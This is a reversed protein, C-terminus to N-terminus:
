KPAGAPVAAATSDFSKVADVILVQLQKPDKADATFTTAGGTIGWTALSKNWSETQKAVEEASEGLAVDNVFRLRLGMKGANPAKPALLQPALQSNIALVAKYLGPGGVGVSTAVLGGVGEGVLYVRNKDVKHDKKFASVADNISKESQWPAKLYASPDDFWAMGKQPDDGVLIKGSPAILAFGLEDAVAKYRGEIMQDKTQGVDHIVILLPMEALAAVKEPIYVAPKAAYEDGKKKLVEREARLTTMREIFKTWRPDKRTNELDADEGAFVINTKGLSDRNGFGFEAAKDLYEFAPDLEGKKSYGCAVNYASTSDRPVLELCRKFCAIGEDNQGANLAKIGKEASATYERSIDQAAAAGILVLSALVSSWFRQM